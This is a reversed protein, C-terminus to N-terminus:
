DQDPSLAPRHVAQISSDLNRIKLFDVLALVSATGVCDWGSPKPAELAAAYAEEQHEPDLETDPGPGNVHLVTWSPGRKYKYSLFLPSPGIARFDIEAYPESPFLNWQTLLDFLEGQFCDIMATKTSQVLIERISFYSLSLPIKHMDKGLVHCMLARKRAPSYITLGFSESAFYVSLIHPPEAGPIRTSGPFYVGSAKRLIRWSTTPPLDEIIVVTWGTAILTELHRELDRLPFKVKLLNSEASLFLGPLGLLSVVQPLLLPNYSGYSLFPKQVVEWRYLNLQTARPEGSGPKARFTQQEYLYCLRGVKMIHIASLGFRERDKKVLNLYQLARPDMM